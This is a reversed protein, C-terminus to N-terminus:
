IWRVPCEKIQYTKMVHGFLFGSGHIDLFQKHGIRFGGGTQLEFQSFSGDM